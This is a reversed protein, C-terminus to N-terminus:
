FIVKPSDTSSTVRIHRNKPSYHAVAVVEANATEQYQNNYVAYIRLSQVDNMLQSTQRTREPM